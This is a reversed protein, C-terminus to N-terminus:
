ESRESELELRWVQGRDRRRIRARREAERQEAQFQRWERRVGEGLRRTGLGSQMEERREESGEEWEVMRDRWWRRGVASGQARARERMRQMWQRMEERAAEQNEQVAREWRVGQAIEQIWSLEFDGVRRCWGQMVERKEDESLGQMARYMVEIRGGVGM